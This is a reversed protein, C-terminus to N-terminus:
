FQAVGCLGVPGLAINAVSPIIRVILRRTADSASTQLAYTGRVDGTLATAPSTTVAATYGTTASMLTTDPWYIQVQTFRDSRLPLGVTDSQGVSLNSGSLTGAPTISAVYKFAKKSTAVGPTTLTVTETMPYWYVDYGRITATALHDDGASTFQLCRALMKTPDWIANGGAGFAVQGSAGDIALLGKVLVGTDSRAIQAGATIGAGTASVLTLATGAVPVQAAAIANTTIASPVQDIAHVSSTGYWGVAGVNGGPAYAFASRPDILGVGQDFMSPGRNPNYDGSFQGAVILPGDMATNAM